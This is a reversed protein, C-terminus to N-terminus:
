PTSGKVTLYSTISQRRQLIIAGTLVTLATVVLTAIGAGVAGSTSSLWGGVSIWLLGAVVNLVLLPRELDCLIMLSGIQGGLVTLMSAIVLLVLVGSAPAFPAGFLVQITWAPFVILFLAPVAVLASSILVARRLYRNLGAIDGRTFLVAIQPTMFSVQVTTVFTIMVAVRQAVTFFAVESESSVVGLVLIPAWTIAYILLASGMMSGLRVFNVRWFSTRPATPLGASGGRKRITSIMLPLSWAAAAWSAATLLWLASSLNALGAAWLGAQALTIVAPVTGLEAFTGAAIKGNGRLASGSLVSLSLPFVASAVIWGLGSFEKLNVSGGLVATLVFGVVVFAVSSAVLVILVMSWIDRLLGTPGNASIRLVLNDTGFRGFAAAVNLVSYALFFLGTDAVGLSRSLVLAMLFSVAVAAVRVVIVDLSSSKLRALGARAANNFM